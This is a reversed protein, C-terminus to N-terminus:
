SAPIVTPCKTAVVEFGLSRAVEQVGICQGFNWFKRLGEPEWPKMEVALSVEEEAFLRFIVWGIRKEDERRASGRELSVHAEGSESLKDIIWDATSLRGIGFEDGLARLLKDIKASFAGKLATRIRGSIEETEAKLEGLRRVNTVLSEGNSM